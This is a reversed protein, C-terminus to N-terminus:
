SQNEEKLIQEVTRDKVIKPDGYPIGTRWEKEVTEAAKILAVDTVSGREGQIQVEAMLNDMALGIAEGTVDKGEEVELAVCVKYEFTVCFLKTM